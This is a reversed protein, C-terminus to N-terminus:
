PRWVEMLLDWLLVIFGVVAIAGATLALVDIVTPIM